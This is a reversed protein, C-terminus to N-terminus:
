DFDLEEEGGGRITSKETDENDVIKKLDMLNQVDKATRQAVEQFQKVNHVPKGTSDLLTLDVSKLYNSINHLAEIANSLHEKALSRNSEKVFTLAKRFIEDGLDCKGGFIVEKLVRAREEKSYERYPNNSSLDTGLVIFAIEKYAREKNESTDRRWLAALPELALAYESMQPNGAKDIYLLGKM